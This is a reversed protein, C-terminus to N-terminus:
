ARLSVTEPIGNTADDGIRQFMKQLRSELAGLRGKLELEAFYRLRTGAGDDTVTFDLEDRYRVMASEGVLVFREPPSFEVMDYPLKMGAISAPIRLRQLLEKPLLGGTLMFRTGVGISGPTTKVTSYTRPDWQAAHRFDSVYAFTEAIPVRIDMIREYTAMATVSTARTQHLCM